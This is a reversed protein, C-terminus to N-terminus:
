VAGPPSPLPKDPLPRQPLPKQLNPSRQIEFSDIDHYGEDEDQVRIIPVRKYGTNTRMRWRNVSPSHKYHAWAGTAVRFLIYALVGAFLFALIRVVITLWLPEQASSQPPTTEDPTEDFFM